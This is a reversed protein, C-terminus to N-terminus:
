KETRKSAPSGQRYQSFFKDLVALGQMLEKRDRATLSTTQRSLEQIAARRIRLFLAEGEPTLQLPIRRRDKGQTDRRILGKEVLTDVMKSMAPQSVGQHRAIEGALNRGRYISGLIRYQPHSLDAPSAARMEMRIKGMAPPITELIKKALDLADISTM